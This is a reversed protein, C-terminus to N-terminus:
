SDGNKIFNRYEIQSNHLESYYVAYSVPGSVPFGDRQKDGPHVKRKKKDFEDYPIYGVIDLINIGSLFVCGFIVTDKDYKDYQDCPIMLSWEPTFSTTCKKTKTQIPRGDNVLLKCNNEDADILCIQERKQIPIGLSINLQEVALEGIMGVKKNEVNTKFGRKKFILIHEYNYEVIGNRPFNIQVIPFIYVYMCDWVTH